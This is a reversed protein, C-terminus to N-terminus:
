VGGVRPRVANCLLCMHTDNDHRPRGNANVRAHLRVFLLKRSWHTENLLTEAHGMTKTAMTHLTAAQFNDDIKGDARDRICRLGWEKERINTGRSQRTHAYM